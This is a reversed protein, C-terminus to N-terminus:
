KLRLEIPKREGKGLDIDLEGTPARATEGAIVPLTARVRYRGAPLGTLRFSGNMAPEDRSEGSPLPEIAVTAFDVPAGDVGIVRGYVEGGAAMTVTGLDTTAGDAVQVDARRVSVHRPHEVRLTYKGEPVRTIEVEGIADTTASPAGASISTTGRSDGNDTRMVAVMRIQRQPRRAGGDGAADLTVRAGAVAEGDEDRVILALTGTRLLLQKEVLPEGAGIHVAQESMVFADPYGYRLVYDGPPLDELEFRGSSDTKAKYPSGLGLDDGTSLELKAGDVLGKSDSVSGALRTLVPRILTIPTTKDAVVEVKAETQVLEHGASDPTMFSVGEALEIPRPPLALRATWVGPPLPGIHALGSADCTGREVVPESGDHVERQLKYHAAPLPANSADLARLDVFGGALLVLEAEVQGVQPVQLPESRARAHTPDSAEVVVAGAQLGAVRAVGQADTTAAGLEAPDGFVVDKAPAASAGRRVRVSRRIGSAPAAGSAAETVKVRAGAVPEGAQDRVTVAVAAGRSAVLRVGEVRQGPRVDFADSVVRLHEGTAIVQTAGPRVSELVFMGDSDTSTGARGDDIMMHEMQGAARAFVRSGSIAVGAEDVLRGHIQAQRALEIVLNTSGAAVAPLRARAHGPGWAEVSVSAADLGRLVFRGNDDTTTAESDNTTQVQLGPALERARDAGVRMGPLPVGLDDVVVGAITRGATLTIVLDSRDQGDELEVATRSPMHDPSATSVTYAGPRLGARAFRGAADTTEGGAGFGLAFGLGGSGADVSVRVGALGKGAADRVVGALRATRGIVIDGLDRDATLASVELTPTPQAGAGGGRVYWADGVLRLRGSRGATLTLDFRGDPGSRAKDSPALAPDALERVDVPTGAVETVTAEAFGVEVDAVPVQQATLLRGRMRFVSTPAPASAVATRTGHGAAAATPAVPGETTLASSARPDAAAAPTEDTGTATPSMRGNEGSGLFMWGAAGLIALVLVTFVVSSDHKAM